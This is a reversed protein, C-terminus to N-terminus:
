SLTREVQRTDYVEIVDGEKVDAYNHLVIGCEFGAAVERVDEQIRRLSDITGDYVITGDRVLRCKAGRTVRGDTVYCGAITGVRSARFIARVEVTGVTEEVEEPALMGQMADRLEDIARYIVSYTRIEVGERDAILRADGVPRVNFGLIVADSAAALMIDSETIGGVGSLVVQVQVESQPLKAIEDEFAELSGSVDAKLVLNLDQLTGGRADDFITELSRKKGSRRALAESKLRHGREGALQRAKRDNEVVRVYEGAEPVSDFGLVEVPESPRAEKVKRGRYDHLARVRGWHAGAVMADGVRLTGRNVLVTVVAGRGPDLKSEIVVGSAEAAPNAKLEEVEALLVISELLDELNTKAKASVDVFMTEGGWEEPQLGLTTMETRVRDPAAGEKDIKNVAVLIPVDAAKAHDVAERTQPKVGDDAAVVIVAIDTVQAGRARMATFAEHGPTDLFTILKDAHHVQYAGIHQTIGGAEGAAVETERIADLLSTKGHDVHGMITVVPPRWELEEEADDFEPEADVEDSAHVIEIKKDFEDAIVQVADDTLTQTLTAMEGLQMLKKIIEPIPVGLYEAVDKVTSGSNVKIVDAQLVSVDQPV